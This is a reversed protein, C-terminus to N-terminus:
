FNTTEHTMEKEVRRHRGDLHRGCRDLGRKCYLGSRFKSNTHFAGAADGECNGPTSLHPELIRGAGAISESAKV